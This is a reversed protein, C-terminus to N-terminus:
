RIEGDVIWVDAAPGTPAAGEEDPVGGKGYSRLTYHAGDGDSEWRLPAGWADNTPCKELHRPVLLPCVTEAVTGDGVRPRFGEDVAYSEIATSIMRLDATTQVRRGRDVAGMLNPIAIAAVIGAVAIAVLGIPVAVLLAIVLPSFTRAPPAPPQAPRAPPAAPPGPDALRTGCRSCFLSDPVLRSGCNPCDM